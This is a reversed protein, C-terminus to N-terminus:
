GAAKAILHRLSEAKLGIPNDKGCVFCHNDDIVQM